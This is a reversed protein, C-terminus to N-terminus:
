YEHDTENSYVRFTYKASRNNKAVFPPEPSTQYSTNAYAVTARDSFANSTHVSSHALRAFNHQVNEVIRHLGEKGTSFLQQGLSIFDDKIRHMTDAISLLDTTRFFELNTPLVILQGNSYVILPLLGIAIIRQLERGFLFTNM